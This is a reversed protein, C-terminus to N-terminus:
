RIRAGQPEALFDYGLTPGILFADETGKVDEVTDDDVDNYDAVYAGTLGLRFHPNPLLNSSFGLGAVQFYTDPHYLAGLTYGHGKLSGSDAIRADASGVLIQRNLLLLQM